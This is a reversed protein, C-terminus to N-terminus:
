YQPNQVLKNTSVGPIGKYYSWLQFNQGNAREDYYNNARVFIYKPTTQRLDLMPVLIKRKTSKFVNHNDRRRILDWYRGGEFAMEVRREKLINEVTATINDTHGARKRIANLYTAALSADGKGSEIVSEAYNLYIEGMRIDIFDTTSSFYTGLVNKGEQLFKKLTFGSNSFNQDSSSGLGSFASFGSLASAGLSFYTKGDKGQASANTYVIKTGDQKILGGQM